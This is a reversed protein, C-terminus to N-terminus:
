RRFASKDNVRPACWFRRARSPRFDIREACADGREWGARHSIREEGEIQAPNDERRNARGPRCARSVCLCLPEQKGLDSKTKPVERFFGFFFSAQRRLGRCLRANTPFRGARQANAVADSRTMELAATRACANAGADNSRPFWSCFFASPM